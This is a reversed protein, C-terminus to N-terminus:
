ISKVKVIVKDEVILDARFGTDIRIGDDIVPIPWQWRYPPRTRDLEYALVTEYFPNGFARDSLRTFASM